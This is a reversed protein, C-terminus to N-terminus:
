KLNNHYKMINRKKSHKDFLHLRPLCLLSREFVDSFEFINNYKNHFIFIM